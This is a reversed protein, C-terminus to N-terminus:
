RRTARSRRLSRRSGFFTGSNRSEAPSTRLRPELRLRREHPHQPVGLARGVVQGRVDPRRSGADPRRSGADPRVDMKIHRVGSRVQAPLRGQVAAPDDRGRRGAARRPRCAQAREVRVVDDRGQAENSSSACSLTARAVRRSGIWAGTALPASWCSLLDAPM